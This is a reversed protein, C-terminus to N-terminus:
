ADGERGGELRLGRVRRWQLVLRLRDFSRDGVGHGVATRISRTRADGATSAAGVTSELLEPRLEQAGDLGVTARQKAASWRRREGSMRRLGGSRVPIQNKPYSKKKQTNQTTRLHNKYV